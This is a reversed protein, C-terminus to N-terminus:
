SRFLFENSAFVAHCYRAWADERGLEAETDRLFAAARAIDRGTAPRGLARLLFDRVREEDSVGEAALLALAAEKSQRILFPSNMLYLAQTPVTTVDRNGKVTNPDPFDFLNLIDVETLQSKRLTPLYVTRRYRTDDNLELNTVLFPPQAMRVTSRSDLPLSPGGARMDLSGSVLLVADRITEAELRRRNARWLLRNEPDEAAAHEHHGAALGYTRSLVIERVLGKVSWNLRQLRLALYDLLEPHSPRDGLLGFNDVSAVIGSGFLHHWVRNAMVRAPLPNGPDTLWAALELRGSSKQFGIGILRRNAIKPESDIPVLSLFGRPVPDGHAHPDGGLRLSTDAPEPDDALALATPPTPKGYYLIRGSETKMSALNRRADALRDVAANRAPSGSDGSELADLEAKAREVEQQARRQAELADEYDRRWQVLAEARERMEDPTEPLVTRHVDSFVGSLRGDLTRTSRFIGALAYYERQPIPDFKHDHCRACGITLGLIARGMTDLQNDVIDMQLQVKDQDVVAWPGIALFGTAIVQERRERDARFELVDGAVQERVFTDYPKDRNFADIVYDRYRWAHVAPIRRGLGLTDAYGSLDLWHRGWREGFAPSSLLRDVASELATPASDSVFRAVEDPTPPLGTLDLALRRLLTHRDASEVPSVGGSELRALVFRDIDSRPWDQDRVEPVPADSLSQWAWHGTGAAGQGDAIASGPEEPIAPWPAGQRIWEALDAIQRDGLKGAPPMSIPGSYRVAQIMRSGDPDGPVVAEGSRGGQLIAERSDLRLEGFVTAARSSHCAYCHQALVPRIRKEFFDLHQPTPGGVQAVAGTSAALAGLWAIAFRVTDGTIGLRHPTRKGTSHKPPSTLPFRPRGAPPRSSRGLGLLSRPRTVARIRVARM